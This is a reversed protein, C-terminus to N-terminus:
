KSPKVSPVVLHYFVHGVERMYKSDTNDFCDYKGEYLSEYGLGFLDLVYSTVEPRNFFSATLLLDVSGLHELCFRLAEYYAARNGGVENKFVGLVEYGEDACCRRCDEEPTSLDIPDDGPSLVNDNIKKAERHSYGSRLDDMDIYIVAGTKEKTNAMVYQNLQASLYLLLQRALRKGTCLPRFCFFDECVVFPSNLEGGITKSSM